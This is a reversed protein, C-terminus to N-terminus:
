GGCVSGTHEDDSVVDISVLDDMGLVYGQNRGGRHTQFARSRRGLKVVRRM